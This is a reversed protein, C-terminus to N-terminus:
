RVTASRSDRSAAGVFPQHREPVRSLVHDKRRQMPNDGTTYQEPATSPGTARRNTRGAARRDDVDTPVALARNPQVHLVESSLGGRPRRARRARYPGPIGSKAERTAAVGTRSRGVKTATSPTSPLPFSRRRM